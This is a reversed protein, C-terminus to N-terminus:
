RIFKHRARWHQMEDRDSARARLKRILLALLFPLAGAPIGLLWAITIDTLPM